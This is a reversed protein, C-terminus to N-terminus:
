TPKVGKSAAIRADIIRTLLTSIGSKPNDLDGFLQDLVKHSNWIVDIIHADSVGPHALEQKLTAVLATAAAAEKVARDAKSQAVKAAERAESAMRQADKDKVPTEVPNPTYAIGAPTRVAFGPVVFARAIKGDSGSVALTGDLQWTALGRGTMLPGYPEDEALNDGHQKFMYMGGGRPGHDIWASWWHVGAADRIYTPEVGGMFTYKKTDLNLQM